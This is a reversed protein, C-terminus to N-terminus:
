CATPSEPCHGCARAPDYSLCVGHSDINGLQAGDDWGHDCKPQIPAFWDKLFCIPYECMDNGV